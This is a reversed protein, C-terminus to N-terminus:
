VGIGRDFAPSQDFAALARDAVDGATEEQARKTRETEPDYGLQELITDQSVGLAQDMTAVERAARTDSPVFESWVTGTVEAPDYGGMELVHQNVELLLEGYTLQKQATRESLPGYLIAMALGSLDGVGALNGTTIEPTSSIAFLASKLERYFALSSALDSQMELNHLEAEANPLVVTEDPAVRLESAAFGKGWTKPHGHLRLIRAINSLTFNIGQNLQIIPEELDADGYFENAAPLNQCHVIPSWPWPWAERKLVEFPGAGTAREDLITWGPEDRLITTRVTIEQGDPGQAQYAITFRIVKDLDDPDVLVSVYEPSLNVLRPFPTGPIIRVFVHGCVGGNVGLKQLFQLKRNAQWFANLYIEARSEEVVTREQGNDDVVRRPEPRRVQWRPERGFLAAVGKNVIWGCFNIKQNDNPRGPKTVLTDRFRGRYAAWADQYRRLRDAEEEM